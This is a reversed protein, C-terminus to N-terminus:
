SRWGEGEKSKALGETLREGKSMERGFFPGRANSLAVSLTKVSKYLLGFKDIESVCIGKPGGM